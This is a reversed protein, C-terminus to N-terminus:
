ISGPNGEREAATGNGIEGKGERGTEGKGEGEEAWGRLNLYTTPTKKPIDTKTSLLYLPSQFTM